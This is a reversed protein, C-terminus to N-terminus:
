ARKLLWQFFFSVTLTKAGLHRAKKSLPKDSTVVTKKKSLLLIELLDLIYDDASMKPPSFVIEISDFHSRSFGLDDAGDFIVIVDIAALKCLDNLSTILSEREERFSEGNSLSFLLNYGDILYHEQSM